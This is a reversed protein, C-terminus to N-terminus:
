VFWRMFTPSFRIYDIAIVAAPGYLQGFSPSGLNDVGMSLGIRNWAPISSNSNNYFYCPAMRSSDIIYGAVSGAGPPTGRSLYFVDGPTRADLNLTNDWYTAVGQKLSVTRYRYTSGSLDIGHWTNGTTGDSWNGSNTDTTFIRRSVSALQTQGGMRVAMTGTAAYANGIASRYLMSSSTGFQLFITSGIITSRYTLASGAAGPAESWNVDGSRTKVNGANDTITWGRTALDASGGDFEDDYISWATAPPDIFPNGTRLFASRDVVRKAGGTASEILIKDGAVLPGSQTAYGTWDNDARKLQADNTVNALGVNAPALATWEMYFPEVGAIVAVRGLQPTASAVDIDGLTSQLASAVGSGVGWEAKITPTIQTIKLTDGIQTPAPSDSVSVTGSLTKIAYAIGNVIPDLFSM